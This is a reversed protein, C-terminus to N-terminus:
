LPEVQHVADLVAGDYDTQGAPSFIRGPGELLLQPLLGRLSVGVASSQAPDKTSSRVAAAVKLELYFKGNQLKLKEEEGTCFAM